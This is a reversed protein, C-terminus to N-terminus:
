HHKRTPVKSKRPHLNFKPKVGVFPVPIQIVCAGENGEAEDPCACIPPGHRLLRSVSETIRNIVSISLKQRQMMVTTFHITETSRYAWKGVLIYPSVRGYTEYNVLMTPTSALLSSIRLEGLTNHLGDCFLITKVMLPSELYANDM